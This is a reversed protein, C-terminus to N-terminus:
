EIKKIILAKEPCSDTLKKVYDYSKSDFVGMSQKEDRPKESDPKLIQALLRAHIPCRGVSIGCDVCRKADILVRFQTIKFGGM